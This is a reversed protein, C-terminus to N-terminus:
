NGLWVNPFLKAHFKKGEETINGIYKTGSETVLNIKPKTWDRFDITGLIIGFGYIDNLSRCKIQHFKPALTIKEILEFAYPESFILNGMRTFTILQIPYLPKRNSYELKGVINDNENISVAIKIDYDQDNYIETVSKTQIPFILTFFFAILFANRSNM